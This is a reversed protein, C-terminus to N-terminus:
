QSADVIFDYWETEVQTYSNVEVGRLIQILLNNEEDGAGWTVFTGSSFIFAEPEIDESNNKVPSQLRVHFIDDAIFPLIIYARQLISLLENMRYSESTSFANVKLPQSAPASFSNPFSSFNQDGGVDRLSKKKKSKTFQHSIEPISHEPKFSSRTSSSFFAPKQYKIHHRCVVNFFFTKFM